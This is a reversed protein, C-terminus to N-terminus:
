GSVGGYPTSSLMLFEGPITNPQNSSLPQFGGTPSYTYLTKGAATNAAAEQPNSIGVFAGQPGRGVFNTGEKGLWTTGAAIAQAIPSSSASSPTPTPTPTPTTTPSSPCVTIPSFSTIGPPLGIAGLAGSLGTYGTSSLCNGSLFDSVANLAENANLQGNTAMWQVAAAQWQSLTGPPGAAGSPSPPAVNLPQSTVPAGATSSLAAANQERRRFWLFLLAAAGLEVGWAWAPQGALRKGKKAAPM